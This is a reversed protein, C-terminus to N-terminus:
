NNEPLLFLKDNQASRLVGATAKTTATAQGEGDMSVARTGWGERKQSPHSSFHCVLWSATATTKRRERQGPFDDNRGFRSLDKTLRATSFDAERGCSLGPWRVAQRWGMVAM